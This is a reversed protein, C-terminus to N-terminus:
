PALHPLLLSLPKGQVEAAAYGFISEATPNFLDVQGAEDVTLIVDQVHDLVAQLQCEKAALQDRLEHLPFAQM